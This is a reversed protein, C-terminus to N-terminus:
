KGAAKALAEAAQRLAAEGVTTYIRGTEGEHGIFADIVAKPQGSEELLTRATHRLSHFSLEQTQRRDDGPAESEAPRSRRRCKQGSGFPSHGRLGALWLWHAFRKSAPGTKGTKRADMVAVQQEFIWEGVGNKSCWVELKGSLEAPIPIWLKLGVKGTEIKLAGAAADFEDKRLRLVDGLRQGTYLGVLAILQWEEDMVAELKRLEALAFPRKVQKQKRAKRLSKLGDAPNATLCGDAVAARFLQRVAKVRHNATATSVRQGEAARFAVMDGRTVADLPKDAKAGLWELWAKLTSRYFELTDASVTGTQAAIWQQVFGRCTIRVHTAGTIKALLDAMVRRAQEVSEMPGKVAEEWALVIQLAKARDTQGTSRYVQKGNHWFSGHWFRSNKSKHISGM